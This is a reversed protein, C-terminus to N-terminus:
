GKKYCACLKDRDLKSVRKVQRADAKIRKDKALSSRVWEIAQAVEKPCDEDPLRYYMWRGQKRAEVLRAQRLISMHKSVTSPALGLMEILQCVCLEGRSLMMLARVRNEDSLAKAISLFAYM